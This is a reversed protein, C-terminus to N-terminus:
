TPLLLMGAPPGGIAHMCDIGLLPCTWSLVVGCVLRAKNGEELLKAIDDYCTVVLKTIGDVYPGTSPHERVRLNEKSPNLLCKVKENYIELYQCEM